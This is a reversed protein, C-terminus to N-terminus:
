LRSFHKMSLRKKIHLSEITRLFITKAKTDFSLATENIRKNQSINKCPITFVHKQDNILLANRNIYGKKIFNVDDYFVFKDVANILQFYGIYPFVYPQMIALKM